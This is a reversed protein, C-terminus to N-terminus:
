ENQTDDPTNVANGVIDEFAAYIMCYTAPLTFLVGIGLLLVGIFNIMMIIVMFGLFPWFNRTILRRSAEMADWFDYQLFIIFPITFSYAVALYIGPIILLLIGAFTFIGVILNALFLPLFMQFGQFFMDFKPIKFKVLENTVIFFGAILPGNVVITGLAGLGTFGAFVNIALYIAAYGVFPGLHSSFIKMGRDIYMGMNFDYGDRILKEIRDQHM